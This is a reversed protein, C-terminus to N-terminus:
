YFGNTEWFSKAQSWGGYRQQVYQDAAREQNAPSYDGNLYASSLQYKGVYQGNRAGYNGGSERQAIWAKAEAESGSVNSSYNSTSTNNNVAPASTYNSTSSQVRQQPAQYNSTVNTSSQQTSATAQTNGSFDIVDGVHILNPNSINNNKVLADVTTGKAQAIKALTDGSEVRVHTADIDTSANAVTGNMAVATGAGIGLAGM